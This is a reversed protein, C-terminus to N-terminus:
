KLVRWYGDKNSGIREIYNNKRLYAIGNQITTKGLRLANALYLQTINPNDRIENLIRRQTEKLIATDTVTFDAGNGISSQAVRSFPITLTISNERFDYADRGYTKIIKPVGRGSRESIHLQLFIDSLRQNVPISEGLFFGEITQNSALTGRSLIEIRDSFVTIMPANGEIWRNHVFANIVAERYVDSSFLPVDKRAVTRDHEDAQILNIVDGYELVKDVTLLLCTNGFEKVSFLPSAKDKGRFISVRVPIHSDDSLLQALLNYSGNKTLLGLNKKFTERRLTIGRGAYYTFLREFSLDQYESEMSDIRPPGHRLVEFLESEREPYRTLNAKSSGIRLYRIGAFATPASKAAPVTLLVIRNGNIVGEDFRFAVDPVLQRALYHELPEGKVKRRYNFSTGVVAHTGDEIGWVLYGADRGLLAAVNSLSSIYEGIGRAEYWSTKFEFWEEEASMDTLLKVISSLDSM